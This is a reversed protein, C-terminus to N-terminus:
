RRAHSKKVGGASLRFSFEGIQLGEAHARRVAPTEPGVAAVPQWPRSQTFIQPYAPDYAVFSMRAPPDSM